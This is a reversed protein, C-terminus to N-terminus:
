RAQAACTLRSRALPPYKSHLPRTVDTMPTMAEERSLSQGHGIRRISRNWKSSPVGITPSWGNRKPTSAYTKKRTPSGLTLEFDFISCKWCPGSQLVSNLFSVHVEIAVV